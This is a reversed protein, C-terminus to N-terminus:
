VPPVIRYPRPLQRSYARKNREREGDIPSMIEHSLNVCEEPDEIEDREERDAQEDIM